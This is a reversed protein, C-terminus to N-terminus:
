LFDFLWIHGWRVLELLLLPYINQKKIQIAVEKAKKFAYKMTFKSYLGYEFLNSIKPFVPSLKNSVTKTEQHKKMEEKNKVIFRDKLSFFGIIITIIGSLVVILTEIPIETLFYKM